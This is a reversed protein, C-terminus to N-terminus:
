LRLLWFLFLVPISFLKSDLDINLFVSDPLDELTLVEANEVTVFSTTEGVKVSRNLNSNATVFESHCRQPRIPSDVKRFTELDIKGLPTLTNATAFNNVKGLEEFSRYVASQKEEDNLFSTSLRLRLCEYYLKSFNDGLRKLCADLNTQM